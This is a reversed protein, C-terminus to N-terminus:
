LSPKSMLYGVFTQIGNFLSVLGFGGGTLTRLIVSFQMQYHAELGPIKRLTCYKENSNSGPESQGLTVDILWISSNM